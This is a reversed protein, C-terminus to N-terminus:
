APLNVRLACTKAIGGLARLSRPPTGLEGNSGTQNRQERQPKEKRSKRELIQNEDDLIWVKVALVRLNRSPRSPFGGM